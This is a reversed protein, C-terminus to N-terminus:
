VVLDVLIPLLKLLSKPSPIHLVACTIESLEVRYAKDSLPPSEYRLIENLVIFRINPGFTSNFGSRGSTTELTYFIVLFILFYWVSDYVDHININTIYVTRELRTM